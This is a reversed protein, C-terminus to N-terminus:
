SQFPPLMSDLGLALVQQLLVARDEDGSARRYSYMSLGVTILNAPHRQFGAVQYSRPPEDNPYVLVAVPAGLAAATALAQHAHSDRPTAGPVTYKCEFTAVTSGEFQLAGDPVVKTATSGDMRRLLPHNTKPV